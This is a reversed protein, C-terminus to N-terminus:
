ILARAVHVQRFYNQYWLNQHVSPGAAALSIGQSQLNRRIVGKKIYLLHCGRKNQLKSAKLLHGLYPLDIQVYVGQDTRVGSGGDRGKGAWHSRDLNGLDAATRIDNLVVTIDVLLEKDVVHTRM